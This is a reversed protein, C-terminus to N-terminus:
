FKDPQGIARRLSMLGKQIDLKADEMWREDLDVEVTKGDKNWKGEQYAKLREFLAGLEGALYDVENFMDLQDETLDKHGKPKTQTM